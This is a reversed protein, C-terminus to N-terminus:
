GTGFLGMVDDGKELGMSIFSVCIIGADLLEVAGYCSFGFLLDADLEAGVGREEGEEPEGM